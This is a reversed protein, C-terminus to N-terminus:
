GIALLTLQFRWFEFHGKAIPRLRSATAARAPASMTIEIIIARERCARFEVSAAPIVSLFPTLPSSRDAIRGPIVKRFSTWFRWMGRERLGRRAAPWTYRAAWAIVARTSRKSAQIMWIKVRSPLGTGQARGVVCLLEALPM